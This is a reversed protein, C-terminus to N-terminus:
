TDLNKIKGPKWGEVKQMADLMASRQQPTLESLKTSPDVGIAGAVASVYADTDNETPPAYRDIADELSLNRYGKSNFLLNAKAQRGVEYSPFIAFRGDSGIAGNAKAFPGYEINGPNNNRWNRPGTVRVRSGDPRQVETYGRGAGLVADFMREAPNDGEVPAYSALEVATGDPATPAESLDFSVDGEVAGTTPNITKWDGEPQEADPQTQLADYFDNWVRGKTHGDIERSLTGILEKVGEEESVGGSGELIPVMISLGQNLTNTVRMLTGLYADRQDMERVNDFGVDNTQIDVRNKEPNYVLRAGKTNKIGALDASAVRFEPIGKFKNMASNFYTAILEKDGSETVKRTVDPNFLQNFLKLHQSGGASVGPDLASFIEDLYNYNQIATKLEQPSAKGSTVVAVLKNTMDKLQANKQETTSNKNNYVRSFVNNVQDGGTVVEAIQDAMTIGRLYESPGGASTMISQGMFDALQPSLKSLGSVVGLNPDAKYLSALAKDQTVQNRGAIIAAQSWQNQQIMDRLQRIPALAATRREELEKPTYLKQFAPDGMDKDFQATAQVYVQDLYQTLSGIEEPSLGGGKTAMTRVTQMFSDTGFGVINSAGSLYSSTIQNARENIAMDARARNGELSLKENEWMERQGKMRAVTSKVQQESYKSTPNEWDFDPFAIAIMGMNESQNLWTEYKTQSNAMSQQQSAINQLLADRFANAPREGTVGQVIEDVDREYGPYKTRLAKLQSALRQYYYEPTVKGQTHALALKQLSQGTRTIEAPVTSSSLNMEDNLADFGYRVDKEISSKIATDATFAAGEVLDGIGSFLAEFAKNGDTGRSAGSWDPAQTAGVEPSFSAM